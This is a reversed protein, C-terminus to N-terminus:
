SQSNPFNEKMESPFFFFVVLLFLILNKANDRGMGSKM